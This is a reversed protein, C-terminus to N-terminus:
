IKTTDVVAQNARKSPGKIKAAWQHIENKWYEKFASWTRETEDKENWKKESKYADDPFQRDFERLARNMIQLDSYPEGLLAANTRADQLRKTTPEIEM